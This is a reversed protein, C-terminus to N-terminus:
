NLIKITPYIQKLKFKNIYSNLKSILGKKDKNKIKLIILLYCCFFQVKFIFQFYFM